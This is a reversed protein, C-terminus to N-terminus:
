AEESENTVELHEPWPERPPDAEDFPRQVSGIDPGEGPDSRMGHEWGIAIKVDPPVCWIHFQNTTDVVRSEAPYLEVGEVEPGALQSKIRQFDRWDRAAKRDHRRISLASVNGAEDRDVHVVYRDNGWVEMEEDPDMNAAIMLKRRLAAQDPDSM